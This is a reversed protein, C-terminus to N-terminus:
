KTDMANSSKKSPCPKKKALNDNAHPQLLHKGERTKKKADLGGNLHLHMVTGSKPSPASVTQPM